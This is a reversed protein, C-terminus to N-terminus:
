GNNSKLSKMDTALSEYLKEIEEEDNAKVQTLQDFLQTGAKILNDSM